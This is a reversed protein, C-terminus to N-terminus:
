FPWCEALLRYWGDEVFSVAILCTLFVPCCVYFIMSADDAGLFFGVIALITIAGSIITVGLLLQICFEKVM